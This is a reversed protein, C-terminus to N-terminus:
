VGTDYCSGAGHVSGGTPLQPESVQHADCTPVIYAHIVEQFHKKSRMHDRLAALLHGTVRKTAM